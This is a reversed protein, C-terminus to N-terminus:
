IWGIMASTASWKPTLWARIPSTGASLWSARATPIKRSNGSPSLNELRRRVMANAVPCVTDSATMVNACPKVSKTSPDVSSPNKVIAGYKSGAYAELRTAGSRNPCTVALSVAPTM